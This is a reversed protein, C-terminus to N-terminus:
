KTPSRTPTPAPSASSSGCGIPLGESRVPACTPRRWWWRTATGGPWTRQGGVPADGRATAAARRPQRRARRSDDRQSHGRPGAVPLAAHQQQVRETAIPPGANFGRTCRVGDGLDEVWGGIPPEDRGVGRRAERRVAQAREAEETLSPIRGDPPDVVLSTRDTTVTTGKDFWFDNYPIIDGQAVRAARDSTDSDRSRRRITDASFEAAQEATFEAQDGLGGPREMPTLSRFDWVGQLDPAGWATRPFATQQAVAHTSLLTFTVVTVTVSALPHLHM